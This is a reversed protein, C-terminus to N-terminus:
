PMHPILINPTHCITDQKSKTRCLFIINKYLNTVFILIM